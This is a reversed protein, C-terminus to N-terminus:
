HAFTMRQSSRVRNNKRVASNRHCSPCEAKAVLASALLRDVETYFTEHIEEIVENTTKGRLDAKPEAVVNENSATKKFLKFM